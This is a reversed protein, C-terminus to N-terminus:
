RRQELEAFLPSSTFLTDSRARLCHLDIGSTRQGTGRGEGEGGVKKFFEFRISVRTMRKCTEILM